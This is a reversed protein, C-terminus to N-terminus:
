VVLQSDLRFFLHHIVLSLVKTLIEIVVSYEVINNTTPGFYVGGLIVLEDTPSFIVRSNFDINQTSHIVVDDYGVYISTSVSMQFDLMIM